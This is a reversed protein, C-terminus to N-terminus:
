SFSGPLPFSEELTYYALVIINAKDEFFPEIELDKELDCNKAPSTVQTIRCVLPRDQYRTCSDSDDLFICRRSQKDLSSWDKGSNYHAVQPACISKQETTLEGFSKTEAPSLHILHHCCYACGKQCSINTNEVQSLYFDVKGRAYSLKEDADMTSMDKLTSFLLAKLEKDERSKKQAVIAGLPLSKLM